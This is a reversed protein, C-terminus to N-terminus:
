SQQTFTLDKLCHLSSTKREDSLIKLLSASKGEDLADIVIVFPKDLALNKAPELVLERFQRFIPATALSRDLELALAVQDAFKGHTKSLDYAITSFLMRPNNIGATEAKFFFCSLPLHSKSCLEAISHAYPVKGQV